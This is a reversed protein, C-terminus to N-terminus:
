IEVTARAPQKDLRAVKQTLSLIVNGYRLM